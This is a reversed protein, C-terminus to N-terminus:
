AVSLGIEPLKPTTTPTTTTSKLYDVVKDTKTRMSGGYQTFGLLNIAVSTNSMSPSWKDRISEALQAIPDSSEMRRQAPVVTETLQPLIWKPADLRRAQNRSLYDQIQDDTPAFGGGVLVGDVRAMFRGVPLQEAGASGLFAASQSADGQQFSVLTCNRRFRLDLSRATPDQLAAIFRIGVKRGENAIMSVWKWMEKSAAAGDSLYIDEAMNGLEDIVIDVFPQPPTGGWHEWDRSGGGLTAVRARLEAYLNKLCPIIERANSLKLAHYNPHTNFVGFGSDSYGVNVTLVGRALSATILTRLMYLTKGSGTKGSILVHPSAAAATILGNRGVGLPRSEGDWANIADWAPLPVNLDDDQLIATTEPLAMKPTQDAIRKITASRTRMDVMQDRETVKDQREATISPLRKLVDGRKTALVGNAMRDPDFAVGDIVDMMPHPNGRADLPITIVSVRKSWAVSFMVAVIALVILFVWISAARIPNVMRDRDVSLRDKEINNASIQATAQANVAALTTTINPTPTWSMATATWAATETAMQSQQTAAAYRQEMGWAAETAKYAATETAIQAQQTASAYHQEMEWAAATAKYAATPAEATATLRASLLDADAQAAEATHQAQAAELLPDGIPLMASQTASACGALLLSALILIFNRKM